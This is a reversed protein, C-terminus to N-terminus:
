TKLRPKLLMLSVPLIYIMTVYNNFFNGSPAFPFFNIFLCIYISRKYYKEIQDLPLNIFLNVVIYIFFSLLFIFGILGTESLLQMYLNHPHTSCSFKWFKFPNEFRDKKYKDEDCIFRFTKAGSGLLPKELFINLM